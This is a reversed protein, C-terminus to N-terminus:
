KQSIDLQVMVEKVVEKHDNEDYISFGPSLGIERGHHRLIKASLSHFTGAFPSNSAQRRPLHTTDALPRDAKPQLQLNYTLLIRIREKIESAAKNTFTVILIHGPEIHKEKILYAVKHTLVRTKGSGAGALILEPGQTYVVAEQQADNLPLVM